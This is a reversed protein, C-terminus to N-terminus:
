KLSKCKLALSCRLPRQQSKPADRNSHQLCGEKMEPLVEGLTAQSTPNRREQWWKEQELIADKILDVKRRSPFVLPLHFPGKTDLCIVAAPEMTIQVEAPGAEEQITQSVLAWVCSPSHGFNWSSNATSGSSTRM